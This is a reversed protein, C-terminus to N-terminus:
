YFGISQIAAYGKLSSDDSTILAVNNFPYVHVYSRDSFTMDIM